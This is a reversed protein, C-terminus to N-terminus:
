ARLRLASEFIWEGPGLRLPDAAGEVEILVEGSLVYFAEDERTYTHAPAGARARDVGDIGAVTQHRCFHAGKDIM